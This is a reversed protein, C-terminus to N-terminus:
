DDYFGDALRRRTRRFNITPLLFNIAPLIFDHKASIFKRSDRRPREADAPIQWAKGQMTVGPINGKECHIQVSRLTLGWKQDAEAVSMYEM